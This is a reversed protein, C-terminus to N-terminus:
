FKFNNVFSSLCPGIAFPLWLSEPSRYIMHLHTCVTFRFLNKKVKSFCVSLNKLGFRHIQFSKVKLTFYWPKKMETQLTSKFVIFWAILHFVSTTSRCFNPIYITQIDKIQSIRPDAKGDVIYMYTCKYLINKFNM